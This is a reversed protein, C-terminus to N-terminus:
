SPVFKLCLNILSKQVGFYIALEVQALYNEFLLKVTTYM